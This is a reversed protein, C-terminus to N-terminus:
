ERINYTGLGCSKMLFKGTTEALLHFQCFQSSRDSLLVVNRVPNYVRREEGLRIERCHQTWCWEPRHLTREKLTEVFFIWDM